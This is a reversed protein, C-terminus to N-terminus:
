SFGKYDSFHVLPHSSWRHEKRMLTYSSSQSLTAPNNTRHYEKTVTHHTHPSGKFGTYIQLSPSETSIVTQTFFCGTFRHSTLQTLPKTAPKSPSNTAAENPILTPPSLRSAPQQSRTVSSSTQQRVFSATVSTIENLSSQSGPYSGRQRAAYM